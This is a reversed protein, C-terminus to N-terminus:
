RVYGRPQFSLLTTVQLAHANPSMSAALCVHGLASHAGRRTAGEIFMSQMHEHQHHIHPHPAPTSRFMYTPLRRWEAFFSGVTSEIRAIACSAARTTCPAREGRGHKGCGRGLASVLHMVSKGGGLVM